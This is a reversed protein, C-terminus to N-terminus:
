RPRRQLSCATMRRCCTFDTFAFCATFTYSANQHPTFPFVVDVFPGPTGGPGGPLWGQGDQHDKIKIQSPDTPPVVGPDPPLLFGAYPPVLQGGLNAALRPAQKPRSILAPRKQELYSKLRRADEEQDQEFEKLKIGAQRMYELQKKQHVERAKRQEEERNRFRQVKEWHEKAREQELDYILQEVPNSMM